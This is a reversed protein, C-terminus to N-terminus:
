NAELTKENKEPDTGLFQVLRKALQIHDHNEEVYEVARKSLLQYDTETLLELKSKLDNSDQYIIGLNGKDIIQDPNANSTTLVPTGVSLAELYTNSFGEYHSTNLLFKANSLFRLIDDRKIYGKFNVNKLSKLKTLYKDVEPHHNVYVGAIQFEENELLSAIEYLLKLNKLFRFNAVWAIYRRERNEFVTTSLIFPNYIKLYGKKPFLKRVLGLQYDNQCLVYDSMQIGKKMLWQNIKSNRTLYREDLLNDSSLRVIHKIGLLRCIVGIFFSEWSPISEYLYNPKTRKLAFYISPFRYSVWRIWRLGKDKKYISILDIHELGSKLEGNQGKHKAICVEKGIASLGRVWISSQVAAGGTAKDEVLFLNIINTDYFFFKM